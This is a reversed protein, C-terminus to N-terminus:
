INELNNLDYVIKEFFRLHNFTKRCTLCRRLWGWGSLDYGVQKFHDAPIEGKYDGWKASNVAVVGDNRGGSREDDSSFVIAWTIYMVPPLYDEEGPGTVGAYSFYKVGSADHYNQNFQRLYSTTLNKMGERSFNSLELLYRWVEGKGKLTKIIKKAERNLSPLKRILQDIDQSSFGQCNQTIFDAVPSGWHPTSITTLSAVRGSKNLGEPSIMFRSDLGGMSHGIIHVKQNAKEIQGWLQRAREEVFDNPAVEPVIVALNPFKNELYDKVGRFYEIEALEAFGFFGHALVIPHM